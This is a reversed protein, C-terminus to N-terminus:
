NGRLTGNLTKRKQGMGRLGEDMWPTKSYRKSPGKNREVWGGMPEQLFCTRVKCTRELSILGTPVGKRESSFIGDPWKASPKRLFPCPNKFSKFVKFRLGEGVFVGWGLARDFGQLALSLAGSPSPHLSSFTRYRTIGFRLHIATQTSFTSFLVESPKNSIGGQRM